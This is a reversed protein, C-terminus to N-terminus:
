GYLGQYGVTVSGDPKVEVPVKDAGYTEKVMRLAAPDHSLNIERYPIGQRRYDHMLRQCYPCGTKTYIVTDDM